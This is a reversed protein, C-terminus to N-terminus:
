ALLEVVKGNSPLGPSITAIEELRVWRVDAVEPAHPQIEGGVHEVRWVVLIHNSDLIRVAGLRQLPRVQMGLEEALERIVARRPTEGREVHGGPFCWAGGKAVNAARQIMLYESGRSVVGIVGRRVRSPTPAITPEPSNM